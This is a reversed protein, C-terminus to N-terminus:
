GGLRDRMRKLDADIEALSRVPGADAEARPAYDTVTGDPAPLRDRIQTLLDLARGIALFLCGAIAVAVAPSLLFLQRNLAAFLLLGAVVFNAWAIIKMAPM